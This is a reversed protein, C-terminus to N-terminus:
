LVNRSLANLTVPPSTWRARRLACPLLRSHSMVTSGSPYPTTLMVNGSVALQAPPAIQVPSPRGSDCSTDAVTAPGTPM